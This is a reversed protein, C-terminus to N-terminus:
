DAQFEFGCKPCHYIKGDPKVNGPDPDGPDDPLGPDDDLGIGGKSATAQILDDIDTGTFGTLEIDLDAYNDQMAVLIDKLAGKDMEAMEAVRNDAVMDAWENADDEYEQFDVPVASLGLDLAAAYRGHGRVVFGSHRSITIPARWGQGRIIKGLAAVQKAPHRNPNRPNGIIKEIPVIEDHACWVAVGDITALPEGTTDPEPTATKKAKAM